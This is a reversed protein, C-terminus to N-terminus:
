ADDEYYSIQFQVNADSGYVRVIDGAGLLMGSWAVNDNAAVAMDYALYHADAIAAGDTSIALRFTKGAAAINTVQLYRLNARRAAPVTYLVSLVAGPTSTATNAIAAAM